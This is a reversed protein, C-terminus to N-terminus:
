LESITTNFKNICGLSLINMLPRLSNNWDSEMNDRLLIMEQKTMNKVIARLETANIM